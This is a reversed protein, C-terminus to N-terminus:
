ATSGGKKRAERLARRIARLKRVVHEVGLEYTTLFWYDEAANLVTYIDDRLAKREQETIADLRGYRLRQM